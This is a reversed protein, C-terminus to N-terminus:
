DYLVKVMRMNDCKCKRLDGLHFKTDCYNEDCECISVSHYQNDAHVYNISLSGTSKVSNLPIHIHEEDICITMMGQGFYFIVKQFSLFNKGLLLPHNLCKIVYGPQYITVNRVVLPLIMSALVGKRRTGSYDILIM